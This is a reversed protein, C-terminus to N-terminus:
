GVWNGRRVGGTWKRGVRRRRKRRRRRVLQTKRHAVHAANVRGHRELGASTSRVVRRMAREMMILMMKMMMRVLMMMMPHFIM